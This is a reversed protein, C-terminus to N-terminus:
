EPTCIQGDYEVSVVGKDFNATGHDHIHAFAGQFVGTGGTVNAHNNIEYLPPDIPSAVISDTTTFTDGGTTTYIHALGFMETGDGRQAFSTACAIFHGLVNEDLDTFTGVETLAGGCDDTPGILQGHIFGSVFHCSSDNHGLQARAAPVLTLIAAICLFGILEVLSGGSRRIKLKGEVFSRITRQNNTTKM